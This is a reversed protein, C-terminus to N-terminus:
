MEIPYMWRCQVPGGIKAELPLHIALHVIFDFFALPFIQELNYLIIAIDKKLSELVKLKLKKVCLEM